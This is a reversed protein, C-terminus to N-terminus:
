LGTKTRKHLAPRLVDEMEKGGKVNCCRYVPNLNM